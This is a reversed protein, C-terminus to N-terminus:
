RCLSFIPCGSTLRQISRGSRRPAVEAGVLGLFERTQASQVETHIHAEGELLKKASYFQNGLEQVDDVIGFELKTSLSRRKHLNHELHPDVSYKSHLATVQVHPLPLHQSSVRNEMIASLEVIIQTTKMSAISIGM